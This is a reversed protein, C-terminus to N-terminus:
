HDILKKLDPELFELKAKQNNLIDYSFYNALLTKNKSFLDLNSEKFQNFTFSINEKERTYILRLM